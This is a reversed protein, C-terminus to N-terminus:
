HSMFDNRNCISNKPKMQIRLKREFLHNDKIINRARDTELVKATISGLMDVCMNVNLLKCICRENKKSTTTNGQALIEWKHHLGRLFISFFLFKVWCSNFEHRGAQLCCGLVILKRDATFHIAFQQQRCYSNFGRDTVVCHHSTCVVYDLSSLLRMRPRTEVVLFGFLFFFCGERNLRRDLFFFLCKRFLHFM